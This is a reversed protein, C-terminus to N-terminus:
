PDYDVGGEVNGLRDVGYFQLTGTQVAIPGTYRQWAGAGWRYSIRVPHADSDATLTITDLPDVVGAALSSRTTPPAVVYTVAHATIDAYTEESSTGATSAVVRLAGDTLYGADVLLADEGKRPPGSYVLKAGAWLEVNTIPNTSYGDIEIRLPGRLHTTAVGAAVATSVGPGMFGVYPFVAGPSLIAKGRLVGKLANPIGANPFRQRVLPHAPRDQAELMIARVVSADWAPNLSWILAAVGAALPTAASTGDFQRYDELVLDGGGLSMAGPFDSVWGAPAEAVFYQAAVSVWHPAWVMHGPAALGVYSGYNSYNVPRDTEEYSVCGVAFGGYSQLYGAPSGILGHDESGVSDNGAATFVLARTQLWALTDPWIGTAPLPAATTGTASMSIVKAGFRSVAQIMGNTMGTTPFGGPVGGGEWAAMNVLDAEPAIGVMGVGDDTGGALALAATALGHQYGTPTSRDQWSDMPNEHLEDYPDYWVDSDYFGNWNYITKGAFEPKAQAVANLGTDVIALTVGAGRAHRWAPLVNMRHLNWQHTLLPDNFAHNYATTHCLTDFWVDEVDPHREYDLFLDSSRAHDIRVAVWRIPAMRLAITGGIERVIQEIRAEDWVRFKVTLTDLLVEV